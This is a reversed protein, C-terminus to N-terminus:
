YHISYFDHMQIPSPKVGQLKANRGMMGTPSYLPTWVAEDSLIKLITEYDKQVAAKDRNVSADDVLKDVEANKYYSRFLM